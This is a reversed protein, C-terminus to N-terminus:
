ADEHFRPRLQEIMEHAKNLTISWRDPDDFEPLLRARRSERDYQLLVRSPTVPIPDRLDAVLRLVPDRVSLVPFSVAWWKGDDGFAYGGNGFNKGGASISFVVALEKWRPDDLEGTALVADVVAELHARARRRLQFEDHTATPKTSKM